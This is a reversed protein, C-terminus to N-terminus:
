KDAGSFIGEKLTVDITDRNFFVEALPTEDGGWGNLEEICTRFFTKLDGITKPSEPLKFEGGMFVEIKSETFQAATM